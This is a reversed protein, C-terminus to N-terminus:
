NPFFRLLEEGVVTTGRRSRVDFAILPDEICLHRKVYKGSRLSALIIVEDGM